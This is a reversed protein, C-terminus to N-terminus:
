VLVFSSICTCTFLVITVCPLVKPNSHCLQPYFTLGNPSFLHLNVRNLSYVCVCVCDFITLTAKSSFLWFFVGGDHCLVSQPFIFCEIGQSAAKTQGKKKQKLESLLEQEYLVQYERTSKTWSSKDITINCCVPFWGYYIFYLCLRM